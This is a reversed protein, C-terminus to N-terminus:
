IPPLNPDLGLGRRLREEQILQHVPKLAPKGDDGVNYFRSVKHFRHRCNPHLPICPVWTSVTRGYNTKGVWVYNMEQQYNHGMKAPDTTVTFTKGELYKQCHKCSGAVPPVWVQDGDQCGAIFADTSAMALETIAVRRWDRNQDGFANFLEQALKQASWRGNIAQLM